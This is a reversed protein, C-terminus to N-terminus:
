GFTKKSEIDSSKVVNRETRIEVEKGLQHDYINKNASWDMESIM